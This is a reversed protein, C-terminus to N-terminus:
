RGCLSPDLDPSTMVDSSTQVQTSPVDIQTSPVNVQTSPVNVQTSPVNVQTSPANVQTTPVLIQTTPVVIQNSPVTLVATPTQVQLSPVAVVLAGNLGVSVKYNKYIPNPALVTLPSDSATRMFDGGESAGGVPTASIATEAMTIRQIIASVQDQTLNQNAGNLLGAPDMNTRAIAIGERVADAESADMEQIIQQETMLGSSDSGSGDASAGGSPTPPIYSKLLPTAYDLAKARALDIDEQYGQIRRQMNDIRGDTVGLARLMALDTEAATKQIAQQNMVALATMFDGYGSDKITSDDSGALENQEIWQKASASLHSSPDDMAARLAAVNYHYGGIDQKRNADEPGSITSLLEPHLMFFLLADAPPNASTSPSSTSTGSQPSPTTQAQVLPASAALVVVSACLALCVKDSKM